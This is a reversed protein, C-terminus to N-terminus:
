PDNKAQPLEMVARTGSKGSLLRLTGGHAEVISRAVYLGMGMGEKKTTMFPSFAKEVDEFPVGKGSDLIEVRVVGNIGTRIEMRGGVPMAEMANLILNFIVQKLRDSDVAIPPLRPEFERIVEIKHHGLQAEMILLIEEIISHLDRLSRRLELPRGLDLFDGVILDLRQIEGLIADVRSKNMGQVEKEGLLQVLLKISSLPNRIEHAVSAALRGVMAQKEASLHREESNRLRSVMENFASGLRGVEDEGAVPVQVNLDGEALKRTGNVLNQLPRTIGRAIWYGVVGVILIAVVSLLAMKRTLERKAERLEATSTLVAVASDPPMMPNRLPLTIYRYPNGGIFVVGESKERFPNMMDRTMHRPLTTALTIGGSTYTLLDVRAVKKVSSLFGADLVFGSGSLTEAVQSARERAERDMKESFVSLSLFTISLILISLLFVYPIVIKHQIKM